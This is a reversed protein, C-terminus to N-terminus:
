KKSPTFTRHIHEEEWQTMWKTKFQKSFKKTLDMLVEMDICGNKINEFTYFDQENWWIEGLKTAIDHNSICCTYFVEHDCFDICLPPPVIRLKRECKVINVEYFSM